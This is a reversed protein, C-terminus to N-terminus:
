VNVARIEVKGRRTEKILNFDKDIVYYGDPGRKHMVVEGLEEDAMICDEGLNVGDLWVNCCLGFTDLWTAYGSDKPDSSVRM